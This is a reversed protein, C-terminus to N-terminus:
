KPFVGFNNKPLNSKDMGNKLDIKYFYIMDENM